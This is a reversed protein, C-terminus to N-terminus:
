GDIFELSYYDKVFVEGVDEPRRAPAYRKMGLIYRFMDKPGDFWAHGGDRFRVASLFDPYRAVFMGCVPCKEKEGPPAPPREAAYAAAGAFLVGAAVALILLRQM